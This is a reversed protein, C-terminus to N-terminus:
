VISAADSLMENGEAILTESFGKWMKDLIKEAQETTLEKGWNAFADKVDEANWSITYEKM